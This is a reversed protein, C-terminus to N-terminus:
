KASGLTMQAVFFGDTGDKHPFLQTLGDDSLLAGAQKDWIKAPAALRFRPNEELFGAIQAHNEQRYVSCTAYVLRGGPKVLKAAARLIRAQLGCIAELESEAFRWKLDPNRRWTGSGSCPADVLVWDASQTHRKLWPDSESAIVRTMVNDVGARSLRPRMQKLRAEAVDLALIRGKNKMQAAIALTKGGAGACFDIVKDGPKAAVCHALFQSGADQMEYLGERFADTAHAAFRANARLAFPLGAVPMLAIGEAALRAQVANVTAGRLPNVRIDVPAQQNLGDAIRHWAAGYDQQLRAACWDPVNARVAEPAGDLPNGAQWRALLAREDADLPAPAHRSGDFLTPIDTNKHIGSLCIASIAAKRENFSTCDQGAVWALSRLHRVAVYFLDTMAVRDKAGIYRRGRYYSAVLADVPKGGPGAQQKYAALLEIVSQIRASDKM